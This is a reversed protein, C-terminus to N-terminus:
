REELQKGLQRVFELIPAFILLLFGGVFGGVGIQDIVEQTVRVPGIGPILKFLKIQDRLLGEAYQPSYCGARVAADISGHVSVSNLSKGLRLQEGDSDGMTYGLMREKGTEPDIAKMQRIFRYEPRWAPLAGASLITGFFRTAKGPGKYFDLWDRHILVMLRDRETGGKPKSGKFGIEDKNGRLHKFLEGFKLYNEFNPSDLFGGHGLLLARVEDAVRASDLVDAALQNERPIGMGEFNLNVLKDKDEIKVVNIFRDDKWERRWKLGLEEFRDAWDEKRFLNAFFGGGFKHTFVELGTIKRGDEDEGIEQKMWNILKDRKWWRDSEGMKAKARNYLNNVRAMFFDGGTLEQIDYGAAMGLFIFMRGAEIKALGRDEDFKPDRDIIPKPPDGSLELEKGGLRRKMRITWDNVELELDKTDKGEKKLEAIEGRLDVIKEADKQYEILEEVVAEDRLAAEVTSLSLHGLVGQIAEINAAGDYSLHCTHEIRTRDFLGAYHLYAEREDRPISALFRELDWSMRWNEAFPTSMMVMKKLKEEFWDDIEERSTTKWDPPREGGM